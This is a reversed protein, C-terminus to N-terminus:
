KLLKNQVRLVKGERIGKRFISERHKPFLSTHHGAGRLAKELSVSRNDLDMYSVLKVATNDILCFKTDDQAQLLYAISTKEGDDIRLGAEREEEQIIELFGVDIDEVIRVKNTINIPVQTGNKPYYKAEDFVVKTVLIEYSSCMKDFLDLIHLDIVVDADLLLLEKM